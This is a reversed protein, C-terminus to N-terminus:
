TAGYLHYRTHLNSPPNRKGFALAPFLIILAVIFCHSAISQFPIALLVTRVCGGLKHMSVLSPPSPASVPFSPSPTHLLMMFCSSFEFSRSPYTIPLVCGLENVPSSLQTLPHWVLQPGQGIVILGLFSLHVCLLTVPSPVFSHPLLLTPFAVSPRFSCLCSPFSYPESPRRPEFLYVRAFISPLCPVKGHVLGPLDTAM